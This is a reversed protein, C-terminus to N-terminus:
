PRALLLKVPRAPTLCTPWRYGFQLILMGRTPVDAYELLAFGSGLAQGIIQEPTFQFTVPHGGRKLALLAPFVMREFQYFYKGVTSEVILVRGGRRVCRFLERLCTAMNEHNQRVSAGIVHHLVNQLLIFDFQEGRYPMDLLSGHQLTINLAPGPGDKLFLDLATVHEALSTDYNFFGGNGVDLLDRTGRIEHEVMLRIYQYHPLSAQVHGYQNNNRFWTVNTTVASQQADPM